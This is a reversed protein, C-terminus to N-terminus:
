LRGVNLPRLIYTLIVYFLPFYVIASGPLVVASLFILKSHAKTTDTLLTIDGGVPHDFIGIANKNGVDDCNCVMQFISAIVKIRIVNGNLYLVYFDAILKVM